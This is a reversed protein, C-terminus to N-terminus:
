DRLSTRAPEEGLAREIKERGPTGADLAEIVENIGDGPLGFVTDV